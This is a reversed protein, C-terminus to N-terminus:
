AFVLALSKLEKQSHTDTKSFVNDLTWKVTSLKVGREEAYGKLSKDEFIAETLFLEANTLKYHDKFLQLPFQGVGKPESVLIMKEPAKLSFVVEKNYIPSVTVKYPSAGSERCVYLSNYHPRSYDTKLLKNLKENDYKNLAALNKGKDLLGDRTDLFKQALPSTEIIELDKSLYIVGINQQDLLSTVNQKFLKAQELQYQSHLTNQILPSMGKLISNIDSSFHGSKKDRIVGFIAYFDKPGYLRILSQSEAQHNSLYEKYIESNELEGPKLLDFHNIVEGIEINNIMPKVRIDKHVFKLYEHGEKNDEYREYRDENSQVIADVLQADKNFMVIHTHISDCMTTIGGLAESWNNRCFLSQNIKYEISEM